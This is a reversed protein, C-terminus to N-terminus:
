PVDESLAELEAAWGLAVVVRTDVPASADGTIEVLGRPSARFTVVDPIERVVRSAGITLDPRTSVDVAVLQDGQRYYLTRGDPSWSPARGGAQSVAHRPALEPYPRISVEWDGSETSQYALWRGDPSFAALDEDFRTRLLPQPGGEGKTPLGWLDTRTEPHIETYVLLEGDPSWTNPFQGRASAQLREPAGSGDAPVQFLNYPGSRSSAFLVRDGEPAWVPEVNHAEFTLRDLTGREPDAVWIDSGTGEHITLALRPTSPAVAVNMYPRRPFPLEQPRQETTRLVLTHGTVEHGGPVYALNGTSSLSFQAAGSFWDMSVGDLVAVPPSVLELRERDLLAVALAGKRGFVLHGGPTHRAYTAGNALTRQLGTALSRVVVSAEPFGGATWVTFVVADSGPLVEPWRHGLEGAAADPTTLSTTPGGSASVRRLGDEAAFVIQGDDGWSAGAAPPTECLGVPAGGRVPLKKLWGDAFFGLWRGDPSFFPVTGGETGPIPSPELQDLARRYLQLRRDRSGAYVLTAGDPSFALAPLAKLSFSQAPPLDLVFRVADRTVPEPSRFGQWAALGALVVAALAVVAGPRRLDRVVWPAASTARPAPVLRIPTAPDARVPALFRYGRRHVTQIFEPRQPDDGLTQRLLSVAETLSTETVFADPWVADMLEKKSVVAGPRELLHELIGLARPPLAVERGERQLLRNERDYRFPGFRLCEGDAPRLTASVVDPESMERERRAGLLM